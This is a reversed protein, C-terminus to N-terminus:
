RQRRKTASYQKEERRNARVPIEKQEEEACWKTTEKLIRQKEIREKTREKEARSTHGRIVRKTHRENKKGLNKGSIGSLSKNRNEEGFKYEIYKTNDVELYANKKTNKKKYTSRLNKPNERSAWSSKQKKSNVLSNADSNTRIQKVKPQKKLRRQKPKKKLRVPKPPTIAPKQRNTFQPNKQQVIRDLAAFPDTSM